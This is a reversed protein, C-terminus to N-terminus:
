EKKKAAGEIDQARFWGPSGEPLREMARKAHGRARGLVGRRLAEEALALSAEGANGLRGEATALFRWASTMEPEYRLADILNERALRVNSVDRTELQLRALNIKILAAWPLLELAKEFPEIADQTRGSDVLLDGKLEYFFPDEPSTAILDDVISIAADIDQLKSLAVARAYKAGVSTDNADYERLTQEPPNIFGKLKGRMRQHMSQLLPSTPRDSYTSNRIHEKVHRLRDVNLPHSRTYANGGASYIKEQELLVQLFNYMGRASQGTAELIDLAAQDASQEMSRTYALFSRQGVTSSASAGAVLGEPRGSAIAAAGGLVLALISQNNANKLNRQMRALHGGTIHGIEHALVGLVQGPTEARMLLGSHMFIRQGGAVFANLNRDNVIHISVASPDLGAAEFLPAVYVRITNEIETDRIFGAGQAFARPANAIAVCSIAVCLIFLRVRKLAIFSWKLEVTGLGIRSHLRPAPIAM